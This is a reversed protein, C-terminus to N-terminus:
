NANRQNNTPKIKLFNILTIIFIWNMLKLEPKLIFDPFNFPLHGFTLAKELVYLFPFERSHFHCYVAKSDQM